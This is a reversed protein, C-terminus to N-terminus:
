YKKSRIMITTQRKKKKKVIRKDFLCAVDILHRVRQKKDLVVLDPHSHEIEKDTQIKM